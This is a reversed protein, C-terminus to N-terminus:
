NFQVQKTKPLTPYRGGVRWQHHSPCLKHFRVLREYRYVYAKEARISYDRLRIAERLRDALKKQPM